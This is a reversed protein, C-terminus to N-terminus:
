LTSTHEHPRARALVAGALRQSYQVRARALVAGALRHSYQMSAHTCSGFHCRSATHIACTCAFARVASWQAHVKSASRAACVSSIFPNAPRASWKM